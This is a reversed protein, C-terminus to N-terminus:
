WFVMGTRELHLSVGHVSTISKVGLAFSPHAFIPFDLFNTIYTYTATLIRTDDMEHFRAQASATPQMIDTTGDWLHTTSKEHLQRSLTGYIMRTRRGFGEFTRWQYRQIELIGFLRYKCDLSTLQPASCSRM